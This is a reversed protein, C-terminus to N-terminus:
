KNLEEDLEAGVTLKLSNKDETTYARGNCKGSRGKKLVKKLTFVGKFSVGGDKLKAKLVDLFARVETEAQSKSIGRKQAYAEVFDKLGSM